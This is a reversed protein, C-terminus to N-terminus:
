NEDESYINKGFEYVNKLHETNGGPRGGGQVVLINKM